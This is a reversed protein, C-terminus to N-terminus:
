SDEEGVAGLVAGPGAGGGFPCWLSGGQPCLPRPAFGVVWGWGTGLDIIRPAVGGSGWYTGMAYYWDLV